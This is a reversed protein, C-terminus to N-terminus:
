KKTLADFEDDITKWETQIFKGNDYQMRINGTKGTRRNAQVSVNVNDTIVMAGNQREAQRWLIIVTDAEQAISASGRLSELDPQTDMKAKKLHCILVIVINWKKALQKLDRTTKAVLLDHRDTNFPVIFDLHDIFVLRTNHKAISEIIKKELWVMDNTVNQRPLYFLPPEEGRELFKRVLEEGGEEFPFWLPNETRTHVTIDVAMSTKGSKTQASLVILQGLRFGGLIDDLSKYGTNIKYEEGRNKIEDILDLTSIIEDDGQYNKSIFKLRELSAAQEADKQTVRINQELQRVLEKIDM